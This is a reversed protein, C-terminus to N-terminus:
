KAKKWREYGEEIERKFKEEAQRRMIKGVPNLPFEDVFVVFRPRKIGAMKDRCFDIIEDETAKEGEKLKILGMPIKGYVDDLAGLLAAYEVKSHSEMIEEIEHPYVKEEGVSILEGKRDVIKLEGAEDFYGLDGSHFWGDKTFADSTKEEDKYYRKAITEGKYLIEGTEGQKVDEGKDNVIRVGLGFIPTGVSRDRIEEASSYVNLTTVTSTETQGFGDAVLANPFRRFMERKLEAPSIGGGSGVTILSSRDYKDMEREPIELFLKRWMTPTMPLIVPKHFDVLEMVERPDFRPNKPFILSMLGTQQWALEFYFEFSAAHFLVWPNLFKLELFPLRGRLMPIIRHMLPGIFSWDTLTKQVLPRHLLDNFSDSGIVEGIASGFPIPLRLKPLKQQLILKVFSGFATEFHKIFENYTQPVGKPMGTTGGTYYMVCPDEGGVEVEPERSPYKRIMDEYNLFEGSEGSVIYNEVKPMNPRAKQVNELWLDETLFVKSDSHNTQYEIERPVFRYNMPSPIAGLKQLACTSEVFEPCNHFMVIGKDGKKVGLDSLANALSNVRDNLEKWTEKKDTGYYISGGQPNREAYIRLMDGFPNM